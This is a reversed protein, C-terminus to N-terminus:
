NAAVSAFGLLRALFVTWADRRIPPVPALVQGVELLHDVPRAHRPLAVALVSVIM